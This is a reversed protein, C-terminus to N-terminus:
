VILYVPIKKKTHGPKEEKYLYRLFKNMRPNPNNELVMNALYDKQFNFKHKGWNRYAAPQSDLIEKLINLECYRNHNGRDSYNQWYVYHNAVSEEFADPFNKSYVHKFYPIFLPKDFLIELKTVAFDHLYHFFEHYFLIRLALYYAELHTIPLNNNKYKKFISERFKKACDHLIFIGWNLSPFGTFHYSRYFACTEFGIEEVFFTKRREKSTEPEIEQISSDEEFPYQLPIKKVDEGSLDPWHEELSPIPHKLPDKGKYIEDSFAERPIQNVIGFFSSNENM